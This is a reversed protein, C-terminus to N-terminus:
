LRLLEGGGRERTEQENGRWVGQADERATRDHAERAEGRGRAGLTM